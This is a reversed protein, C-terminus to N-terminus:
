PPSLSGAPSLDAPPNAHRNRVSLLLFIALRSSSSLISPTTAAPSNSRFPDSTPYSALMSIDGSRAAPAAWNQAVTEISNSVSLPANEWILPIFQVGWCPQAYEPPSQVTAMPSPPRLPTNMSVALASKLSSKRTRTPWGYRARGVTAEGQQSPHSESTGIGDDARAFPGSALPFAFGAPM